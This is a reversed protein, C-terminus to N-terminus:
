GRERNAPPSQQPQSPLLIHRTCEHHCIHRLEWTNWISNKSVPVSRQTPQFLITNHLIHIAGLPRIASGFQIFKRFCDSRGKVARMKPTNHHLKKYHIHDFIHFSTRPGYLIFHTCMIELYLSWESPRPNPTLPRKSGKRFNMRKPLSLSTYSSSREEPTDQKSTEWYLRQHYSSIELICEGPEHYVM